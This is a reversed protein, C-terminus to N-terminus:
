SSLICFSKGMAKLIWIKSSQFRIIIPPSKQLYTDVARLVVRMLSAKARSKFMKTRISRRHISMKARKLKEAMTSRILATSFAMKINMSNTVEGQSKTITTTNSIGRTKITPSLPSSSTTKSARGESSSITTLPNNHIDTVKITRTARSIDVAVETVLTVMITINGITIITRTAKKIAEKKTAVWIATTTRDRSIIEWETIPVVWGRISLATAETTLCPQLTEEWHNNPSKTMRIARAVWPTNNSRVTITTMGRIDWTAVTEVM